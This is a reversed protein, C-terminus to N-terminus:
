KFKQCSFLRFLSSKLMSKGFLLSAAEKERGEGGRRSSKPEPYGENVMDSVGTREVVAEVVDPEGPVIAVGVASGVFSTLLLTITSSM